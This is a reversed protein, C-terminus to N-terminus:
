RHLARAAQGLRRQGHPQRDNNAAATKRARCRSSRCSCRRSALQGHKWTPVAGDRVAGSGDPEFRTVDRSALVSSQRRARVLKSKQTRRLWASPLRYRGRGAPYRGDSEACHGCRRDRRRALRTGRRLGGHTGSHSPQAARCDHRRRHRGRQRCRRHPPRDRRDAAGANEQPWSSPPQRRHAHGAATPPVAAGESRRHPSSSRSDFRYLACDSVAERRRRARRRQLADVAQLGARTTIGNELRGDHEALRGGPVRHHGAAAQARHRDGGTAVAPAAAAGRACRCQMCGSAREARLAESNRAVDGSPGAERPPDAGLNGGGVGGRDLAGGCIWAPWAGLLM